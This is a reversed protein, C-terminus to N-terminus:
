RGLLPLVRECILEVGGLPTRGQPTGLEVREAGADWLEVCTRRRGRGAHGRYLVPRPASKVM